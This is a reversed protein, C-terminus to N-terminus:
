DNVGLQTACSMGDKLLRAQFHLWVAAGCKATVRLLQTETEWKMTSSNQCVDEGNRLNVPSLAPEQLTWGRHIQAESKSLSAATDNREVVCISICKLSRSM